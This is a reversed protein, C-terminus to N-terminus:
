KLKIVLSESKIKNGSKIISVSESLILNDNKIELKAAEGKIFEYGDFFSIKIPNGNAYFVDTSEIVILKDATFTVNESEFSVNDEYIIRDIDTNIEIKDSTISYEQAEILGNFSFLLLLFLSFKYFM